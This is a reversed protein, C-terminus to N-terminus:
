QPIPQTPAPATLSQATRRAGIAIVVLAAALFVANSIRAALISGPVVPHGIFAHVGYAVAGGAALSFIHLPNWGARRSLVSVSALFALDITLMAAVAGWNWTPPLILVCFGLVFALSGTFWPSPVVGTQASPPAPRLRFALVILLLIVLGAAVFQSAPAVWRDQKLTIFVGMFCGILFLVFVVSDGVRGLWPQDTHAPFLGEVLAISVSISWFAHLNLMFLTWWGGIHLLPIWAHTLFHGHLHLYDPNFLSQTTFAEELLAYAAGLVLISPWGRRSRRVVERILLAGGGYMPALAVLAFLLKLPLDGLLYEAVLPATFFLVIAASISRQSRNM